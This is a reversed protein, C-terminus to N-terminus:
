VKAYLVLYSKAEYCRVESFTGADRFVHQIPGPPQMPNRRQLLFLEDFHHRLFGHFEISSGGYDAM